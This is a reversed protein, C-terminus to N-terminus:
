TGCAQKAAQIQQWVSASQGGTEKLVQDTVQGALIRWSKLTSGEPRTVVAGEAEAKKLLGAEAQRIAPRINATAADAAQTIWDREQPSLSSWTKSSVLYTGTQHSHNTVAVHKAVKDYGVALGYVTPFTAGAVGGTKLAPMTDALGLPVATAGTANVYITDTKVPATRIKKGSLDAPVAVPFASFVIQNGIETWSVPQLGKAVFMPEFVKKLHNDIVCDGQKSSDWLYPAALLAFEPVMLSAGTNSVGVIDIRGRGAQRITEQEDGLQGGPFVKVTLKGGSLEGIKQGFAAFAKGWPSEAPAANSARLERAHASHAFLCLAAAISLVIRQKTM